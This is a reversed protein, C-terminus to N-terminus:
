CGLGHTATSARWTQMFLQATSTDLLTAKFALMCKLLWLFTDKGVHDKFQKTAQLLTTHKSSAELEEGEIPAGCHLRLNTRLRKCSIKAAKHLSLVAELLLLVPVAALGPSDRSLLAM